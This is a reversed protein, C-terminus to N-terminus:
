RYIYSNGNRAQKYYHVTFLRTYMGNIGLFPIPADFFVYM